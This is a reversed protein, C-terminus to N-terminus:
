RPAAPLVPQGNVTASFDVVCMYRYGRHPGCGVGAFRYGPQFVLARHGRGRVGDDIILQRVVMDPDAFGYAIGEGVYIGGGRRRMREGPTSGAASAHGVAGTEGQADAHDRAALTLLDARTLPPLPPQRELFAIAEDVASRGEITAVDHEEGPLRVIRGDFWRAYDRLQEAYARPQTRAFNIRDLVAREIDARDATAAALLPTCGLLAAIAIRCIHM